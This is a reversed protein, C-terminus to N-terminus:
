TVLKQIRYQGNDYYGNGDDDDSEMNLRFTAHRQSYYLHRLTTFIFPPIFLATTCFLILTNNKKNHRIENM